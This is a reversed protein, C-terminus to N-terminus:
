KLYFMPKPLFFSCKFGLLFLKGMVQTAEFIKKNGLQVMDAELTLNPSSKSACPYPLLVHILYLCLDNVPSQVPQDLM